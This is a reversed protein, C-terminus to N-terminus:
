QLGSLIRGITDYSYLQGTDCAFDGYNRWVKVFGADFKDGMAYYNQRRHAAKVVHALCPQSRGSGGYYARHQAFVSPAVGAM